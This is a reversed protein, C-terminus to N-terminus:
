QSYLTLLFHCQLPCEGRHGASRLPVAHLELMLNTFHHQFDTFHLCQVALFDRCPSLPARALSRYSLRLGCLRQGHPEQTQGPVELGFFNESSKMRPLVKLSLFEMKWTKCQQNKHFHLGKARKQATSPFVM